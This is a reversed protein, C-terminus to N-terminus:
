PLVKLALAIRTKGAGVNMKRYPTGDSRFVATAGTTPHTASFSLTGQALDAFWFDEFTALQTADLPRTRGSLMAEASTTRARIKTNGGASTFVSKNGEPGTETLGSLQDIFPLGAPWSPIPM